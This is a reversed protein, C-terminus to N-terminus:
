RCGHRHAAHRGDSLRIEARDGSGGALLIDVNRSALEHYAAEYGAVNAAQVIRVLTRARRTDSSPWANSLLSTLDGATGRQVRRRAGVRLFSPSQQGRVPLPWTAAAGGLGAILDRRRM